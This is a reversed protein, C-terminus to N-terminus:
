GLVTLPISATSRGDVSVSVQVVGLPLGAPVTAKMRSRFPQAGLTVPVANFNVIVNRGSLSDGTVTITDGTFASSPNVNDLRPPITNSVVGDVTVSIPTTVA